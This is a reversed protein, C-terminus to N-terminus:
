RPRSPQWEVDGQVLRRAIYATVVWHRGSPPPDTVVVVVMHKGGRVDAFWRSLLRANPKGTLRRVQDPHELVQIICGRYAPLLDPHRAAIHRERERTLDVKGGLYPCALRAM